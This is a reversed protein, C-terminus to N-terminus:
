RSKEVFRSIVRLPKCLGMDYSFDDINGLTILSKPLTVSHNTSRPTVPELGTLWGENLGSDNASLLNNRKAM